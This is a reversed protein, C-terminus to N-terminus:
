APTTTMVIPAIPQGPAHKVVVWGDYRKTRRWDPLDYPVSLRLTTRTGDVAFDGCSLTPRGHKSLLLEYWGRKSLRPLGQVTMELPYNGGSDHSGIKIDAKAVALKGVGHMPVVVSAEFGTSKNAVAYGVVFAGAALTAALAFVTAPRRRKFELVKSEEVEPATAIAPSMEPPPGAAVLLDHVRHLRDLEERGGEDGVLDRFDPENTM